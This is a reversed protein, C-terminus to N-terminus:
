SLRRSLPSLCRQLEQAERWTDQNGYQRLTRVVLRVCGLDRIEATPHWFWFCEPHAKVLAEARAILEAPAANAPDMEMEERETGIM